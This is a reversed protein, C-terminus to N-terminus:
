DRRGPQALLERQRGLDDIQHMAAVGRFQRRQVVVQGGNELDNLPCIARWSGLRDLRDSIEFAPQRRLQRAGPWSLRRRSEGLAPVANARSLQAIDPIAPTFRQM